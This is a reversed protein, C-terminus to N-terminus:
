CLSKEFIGFSLHNKYKMDYTLSSAYHEISSMISKAMWLSDTQLSVLGEVCSCGSLM